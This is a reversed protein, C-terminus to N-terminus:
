LCDMVIIKSEDFGCEIEVYRVCFWYWKSVNMCVFFYSFGRGLRLVCWDYKCFDILGVYVELVVYKIDVRM